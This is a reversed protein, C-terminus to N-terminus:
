GHFCQKICRRRWYRWQEVLEPTWEVVEATESEPPYPADVVKRQGRLMPVPRGDAWGISYRAKSWMQGGLPFNPLVRLWAEHDCPSAWDWGPPYGDYPRQM